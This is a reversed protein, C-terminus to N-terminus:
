KAKRFAERIVRPLNERVSRSDLLTDGGKVGHYSGGHREGASVRVQGSPLQAVCVWTHRKVFDLHQKESRRKELAPDYKTTLYSELCRLVVDAVTSDFDQERILIPEGFERSGGLSSPVSPQVLYQGDITDFHISVTPIIIMKRM